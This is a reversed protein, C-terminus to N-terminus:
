VRRQRQRQYQPSKLYLNLAALAARQFAEAQGKDRIEVLPAYSTAGDKEYAKAPFNVYRRGNREHIACDNITIGTGRHQFRGFGQLSGKQHRRFESCVWQLPAAPAAAPNPRPATM